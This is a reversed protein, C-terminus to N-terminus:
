ATLTITIDGTMLSSNGFTAGNAVTLVLLGSASTTGKTNSKVSVGNPLDNTVVSATVEVRTIGKYAYFPISLDRAASANGSTNCPIVDAYNGLGMSIGDTGDEGDKGKKGDKTIVISQDDLQQTTGGAAYLVCRVVNVTNASPTYTKSTENSGSTYKVTFTEGGDTSESIIFRGSYTTKVLDEGTKKYANFTVSTPTFAGSESLNLAYVDPVVEYIVADEGDAGAYQKTITYRKTITSYGTRTCTFDAYSNDVTLASPTYTHTSSNYTGTLGTGDAKSISWQSTVDNGGEYIHIETSAGTWSKVTGDSKVALVHNENSLVAAVTSNGAAGDYIKNIQTIDYIDNDNTVLKIVAIKDNLWINAEDHHVSLTNGSISANNTTPFAVFDGDSNKYQWQVVSCNTLDATLTIIGTGVINRSTDYLFTNEGTIGAYKLESAMTVLNYTLSSEASIPVGTDPDTYKV